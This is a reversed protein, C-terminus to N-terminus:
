SFLCILRLFFFCSFHLDILLISCSSNLVWSSPDVEFTMGALIMSLNITNINEMFAEQLALVLLQSMLQNPTKFGLLLFFNGYDSGTNVAILNLKIQVTSYLTKSLEIMRLFSFCTSFTFGFIQLDIEDM